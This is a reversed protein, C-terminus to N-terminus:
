PAAVGRRVARSAVTGPVVAGLAVTGPTAAGLARPGIAGSAVTSMYQKASSSLAPMRSAAKYWAAANRAPASISPGAMRASRLAVVTTSGPQRAETVAAPQM